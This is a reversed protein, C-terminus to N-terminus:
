PRPQRRPTRREDRWAGAQRVRGPEHPATRVCNGGAQRAAALADKADEILSQLHPHVPRLYAVGVSVTICLQQEAWHLDMREARERIREAVDLAGTADAQALFIAMQGDALRTLADAGRLTGATSRLLEALVAVGAEAGRAECLRLYRDIDVLLLAVGCNYRRARAWEREALQFFLARPTVAGAGDSAPVTEPGPSGDATRAAKLALAVAPLSVIAVGLAAGILAAWSAAAGFGSEIAGAAGAAIGAAAVALLLVVAGLPLRWRPALAAAPAAQPAPSPPTTRLSNM